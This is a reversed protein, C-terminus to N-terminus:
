AAAPRLVGDCAVRAPDGAPLKACVAGLEKGLRSMTDAHSGGANWAVLRKGVRELVRRNRDYFTDPTPELEGIVQTAAREIRAADQPALEILANVYSAGWQLRTAPGVAAAYAKEHWELARAMDGRKRANSALGLMAYYPSHSRSLETTLLADSEDLMGAEELMDAAGSVVAQRAYPDTTERDARAAEDRVRQQLAPPLPMGGAQKALNVRATVVAIRDAAALGPDAALRELAADWEGVLAAREASKPLTVHGAIAGASYTLVDFNARTAAADAAVTAILRAAGPDARPKAGKVGAAAALALLQLRTATAHEAAPCAQALRALTPAVKDKPVLEGDDTVWSYWALMQWDQATLAVNRKRADPSLATALTEKIPRAGSMSLALVRM